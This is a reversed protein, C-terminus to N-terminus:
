RMEDFGDRGWLICIFIGFKEIFFSVCPSILHRMWALGDLLLTLVQVGSMFMTTVPGVVSKEGLALRSM